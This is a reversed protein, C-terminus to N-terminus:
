PEIGILQPIPYQSYVEILIDTQEKSDPKRHGHPWRRRFYQTIAYHYATPLRYTQGSRSGGLYGPVFHHNEYGEAEPYKARAEALRQYYLQRAQQVVALDAARRARAQIEAPTPRPNLLPPPTRGSEGGGRRRGPPRRMELPGADEANARDDQWAEPFFAGPVSEQKQIYVGPADRRSATTSGCGLVAVVALCWLSLWWRARM